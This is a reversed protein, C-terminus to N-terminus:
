WGGPYAMGPYAQPWGPAYGGGPPPYAGPAAYYGPYGYPYGQNGFSSGARRDYPAMPRYGQVPPLPAPAQRRSGQGASGSEELPRYQPTPPAYQRQQPRAPQSQGWQSGGQASYSHPQAKPVAWPNGSDGAAPAPPAAPLPQPAYRYGQQPLQQAAGPWQSAPIQVVIAQRPVAESDGVREQQPDDGCARLMLMFVGALVLLGILAHRPKWFGAPSTSSNTQTTM